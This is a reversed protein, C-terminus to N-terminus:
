LGPKNASHNSAEADPGYHIVGSINIATYRSYDCCCPGGAACGSCCYTKEQVVTPPWLFEIDCNVCRFVKQQARHFLQNDGQMNEIRQMRAIVDVGHTQQEEKEESRAVDGRLPTSLEGGWEM